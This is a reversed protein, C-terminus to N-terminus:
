RLLVHCFILRMVNRTEKEFEFSNWQDVWVKLEMKKRRVQMAQVKEQVEQLDREPLKSLTQKMETVAIVHYRITGVTSGSYRDMAKGDGM